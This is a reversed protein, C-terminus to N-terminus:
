ADASEKGDGSSLIADIERRAVRQSDAFKSVRSPTGSGDPYIGDDDPVFHAAEVFANALGFTHNPTKGYISALRDGYEKDRVCACYSDEGFQVLTADIWM